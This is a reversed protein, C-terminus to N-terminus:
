RSAKPTLRDQFSFVPVKIERRAKDAPFGDGRMLDLVVMTRDDYFQEHCADCVIAPVDEVVVLRDGDWFASRVNTSRVSTSGCHTCCAENDESM